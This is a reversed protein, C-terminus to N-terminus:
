SVDGNRASARHTRVNTKVTHATLYQQSKSALFAETVAKIEAKLVDDHSERISDSIALRFKEGEYKGPDLDALAKELSKKEIELNAMRAKLDGYSDILNTLNTKTM